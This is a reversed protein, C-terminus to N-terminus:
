KHALIKRTMLDIGGQTMHHKQDQGVYTFTGLAGSGNQASAYVANSDNASWTASTFTANAAFNTTPDNTGDIGHYDLIGGSQKALASLGGQKLAVVTAQSVAFVNDLLTPSTNWIHHAERGGDTGMVSLDHYNAISYFDAQCQEGDGVSGDIPYTAALPGLNAGSFAGIYGSHAFSMQIRPDLAAMLISLWGGGSFGGIVPTMGAAVVTNVAVIAQWLFMGLGEAGLDDTFNTHDPGPSLSASGMIRSLYEGLMSIEIVGIGSQLPTTMYNTIAAPANSPLAYMQMRQAHNAGTSVYVSGTTNTYVVDNDTNDHGHCWILVHKNPTLTTFTLSTAASTTVGTGSITFSTGSEISVITTGAPINAASVGFGVKLPHTNINDITNNSHTSAVGTIKALVAPKCYRLSFTHQMSGLVVRNMGRALRIDRDIADATGAQIAAIFASSATETPMGDPLALDILRKRTYAISGIAKAENYISM